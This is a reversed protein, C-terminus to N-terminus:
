PHPRKATAALNFRNPGAVKSPNREPHQKFGINQQLLDKKILHTQM